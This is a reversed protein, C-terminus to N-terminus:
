AIVSSAALLAALSAGIMTAKEEMSDPAGGGGGGQVPSTDGGGGNNSQQSEPPCTFEVFIGMSDSITRSSGSCKECTKMDGYQSDYWDSCWLGSQEPECVDNYYCDTGETAIAQTSAVLVALTFTKM